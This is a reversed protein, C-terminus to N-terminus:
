RFRRNAARCGKVIQAVKTKCEEIAKELEATVLLGVQAQPAVTVTPPKHKFAAQKSTPLVKSTALPISTGIDKANELDDPNLVPTKKKWNFKTM